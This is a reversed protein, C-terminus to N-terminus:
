NACNAFFQGIPTLVGEQQIFITPYGFRSTFELPCIGNGNVICNLDIDCPLL